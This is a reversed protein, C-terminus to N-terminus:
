AGPLPKFGAGCVGWGAGMEKKKKKKDRSLESLYNQSIFCGILVFTRYPRIKHQLGQFAECCVRTFLIQYESLFFRLLCQKLNRRQM